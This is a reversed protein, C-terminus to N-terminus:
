KGCSKLYREWRKYIVSPDLKAGISRANEAIRRGFAEDNLIRGMAQILAKEDGVPILLGNVNNEILENVGGGTSKTAIVPLGLVMAEMLANPMGEYKSSLVFMKSDYLVEHLNQVIGPLEIKDEMGLEATLSELEKRLEGEGYIVLKLQPYSASLKAFGKILLQFDKQGSLRGVASIKNNRNECIEKRLFDRNIPNPIVAAKKQLKKSFYNKEEQTQFVIGRALPYLIRYLLKHVPPKYEMKPDCRVSIVSPIHLFRGAIITRYNTATLFSLLIDPKEKRGLYILIKIREIMKLFRNSSKIRESLVYRKIGKEVQYSKKDPIDTVLVVQYNNRNFDNALNVMVREAGGAQICGIYMLIKKM